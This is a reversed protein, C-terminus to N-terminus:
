VVRGARRPRTVTTGEAVNGWARIHLSGPELHELGIFREIGAEGPDRETENLSEVVDGFRVRKWNSRDFLPCTGLGNLTENLAMSSIDPLISCLSEVVSKRSSLWGDLTIALSIGNRSKVAKATENPAVYFPISLNGDRARIEELGVVRTFGPEGKFAEYAQVIRAIHDDTLFSQARERTVENVAN